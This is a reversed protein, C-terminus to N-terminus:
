NTNHPLYDSQFDEAFYPDTIYRAYLKGSWFRNFELHNQFDFFGRFNSADSLQSLYPAVNASTNGAYNNLTNQRFQAFKPDSPLVSAYLHGDSDPTLYRFFNNFRMGRQSYWAPTFLLDYNPAINWYYPEGTSFGNETSYGIEPPLFGSKRSANLPFSYYPTYFIPVKKFRIVVDHATGEGSTRDLAMSKASIVWSPNEPSCTTYQAQKLDIVGNANRHMSEATGWADFPTTVSLIEHTGTLHYIAHNISLTNNAIDYNAKNGVLLRGFEQVRVHGILKIDTVKGTKRDHYVIAKDAQILRGPHKIEVDDQLVSSGSARFFVPGKAPITVPVTQYAPPNPVNAIAAPHSYYGGCLNEPQGTEHGKEWGLAQAITSAAFISPCPLVAIAVLLIFSFNRSSKKM